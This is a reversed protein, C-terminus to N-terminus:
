QQAHMTIKNRVQWILLNLTLRQIHFKLFLVPFTAGTSEKIVYAMHQTNGLTEGAINVTSDNVNDPQSFYVVLTTAGEFSPRHNDQMNSDIPNIRNSCAVFVTGISLCLALSFLKFGLKM